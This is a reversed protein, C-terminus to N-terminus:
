VTKSSFFFFFFFPASTGEPMGIVTSGFARPATWGGGGSSGLLVSHWGRGSSLTKRFIIFGKYALNERFSALVLEARIDCIPSFGTKGGPARTPGM